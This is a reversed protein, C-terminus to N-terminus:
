RVPIKKITKSSKKYYQVGAGFIAPIMFPLLSPEEKAIDIADQIVLPTLRERIAKGVTIEEGIASKGRLLDLMFSVVPATKFTFYRSIIDLRTTAKYGEGLTYKRGTSSSVMENTALRSILVALQQFGGTLDLRLDGVRIKGFDTSRPDTGVEAGGMKALTLVTLLFGIFGFLSKLAERRTFPDLKTYYVPNLLRFRATHLRPSFFISNLLPAANELADPLKGRGTANNVFEAINKFVDENEQLDLGQAQASKVLSKFTDFRLKNLFGVYARESAKIGIGVGPIKEALSSMYVEERNSLNSGMGTLALGMQQAIDSYPDEKIATKVNEFVKQSFFQPIMKAFAGAFQKPKSILFIGQRLPASLDYSAMIARPINLVDLGLEGAKQLWSKKEVLLDTLDKGFVTTLLDLEKATPMGAGFEGFLKGLAQRANITDFYSLEPHEAIMDFLSDVDEQKIKNKLTEFELKEYQGKLSGIEAFFGKQGKISQAMATAKAVRRAKEKKIIGQQQKSLPKTALIAERLIDVPKPEKKKVVPKKTIEESVEPIPPPLTTEEIINNLALDSQKDTAKEIYDITKVAEEKTLGQKQLDKVISQKEIGSLVVSASGGLLFGIVGSQVLGDTLDKASDIGGLKTIINSALEQSIEQSGEILGRFVAKAVGTGQRKFFMDLGIYELGGEAIGAITSLEQAKKPEKGAERAEQYKGSKAQVGFVVAATHPSRTLKTLALAEALSTVGSGMAFLFENTKGTGPNIENAEMFRKNNAIIQKGKNSVFKDIGTKKAISKYMGSFQKPDIGGAAITSLREPISPEKGFTEGFEQMLSGVVSPSSLIPQLLGLGIARAGQKVKGTPKELDKGYVENQIINSIEDASMDDPFNIVMGKDEILVNPM